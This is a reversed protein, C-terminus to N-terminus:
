FDIALGAGARVRARRAQWRVNRTAGVALLPVGIVFAAGPVVWVAGSRPEWDSAAVAAISAVITLAGGVALVAGPVLLGLGRPPDHDARGPAFPLPARTFGAFMGFQPWVAHGITGSIRAQVGVTAQLRAGPAAIVYGLRGEGELGLGHAGVPIMVGFGAGYALRGRLGAVGHLAAHHRHVVLADNPPRITPTDARGVSITGRYGLALWHAPHWLRVPLSAGLFLSAEASPIPSFGFNLGLGGAVVFRAPAPAVAPAPPPEGPGPSAPAQILALVLTWFMPGTSALRTGTDYEDGVNLAGIPTSAGPREDCAPSPDLVAPTGSAPAPRGDSAPRHVAQM